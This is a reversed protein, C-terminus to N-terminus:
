ASVDLAFCFGTVAMSMASSGSAVIDLVRLGDVGAQKLDERLAENRREPAVWWGCM